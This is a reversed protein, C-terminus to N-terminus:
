QVNAWLGPRRSRHSRNQIFSCHGMMVHREVAGRMREQVPHSHSMKGGFFETRHKGQKGGGNEKM